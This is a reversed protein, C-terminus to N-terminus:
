DTDRDQHSRNRVPMDCHLVLVLPANEPLDDPLHIRYRRDLGDHEFLLVQGSAAQMVMLAAALATIISFPRM